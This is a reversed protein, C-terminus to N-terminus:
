EARLAVVPDVKTARRAPIWCALAAVAAFFLITLGLTLPDHASTQFMRSEILRGAALAGLLGLLLGSGVLRAGQGLVLRIVDRPVAGLAMRIGIETTRQSVSYAIVGYIGVAAITLALLSFAILLHLEFRQQHVREDLIERIPRGGGVALTPDVEHIQAAVSSHAGSYEGHTRVILNFRASPSQAFAHYTHAAIPEAPNGQTADAVVGVIERWGSSTASEVQIRRGIPNEGPFHQRAFTENILAVLPAQANDQANFLRGRLLRIGTSPFYGPSVMSWRTRPWLTRDVEPRGEIRFEMTSRATSAFPVNRTVGAVEIGPTTELRSLVADVFAVQREPTPYKATPLALSYQVAHEPVLGLDVYALRIFSRLLLGAGSLLVVACAVELVVLIRRLRGAAPSESNGRPGQKLAENLNVRSALWAPALGFGLATLVSLGIVFAVMRGDMTIAAIDMSAILPHARLAERTWVAILTGAAGGLVALLLSETILQGLLRPRSAGLAARVSLERQRNAARVLLLSAVNACAILLVCGVAGLLTWLMARWNRTFYQQEPAVFYRRGLNTEPYQEALRASLADLEAQAQALTVGPKLLGCVELPVSRVRTRPTNVYPVFAEADNRSRYFDEPAVGIVTWPEGGFQLTRGVIDPVGGFVRQWFGHGLIVVRHNGAIHEDTSFNRGLAFKAQYFPFFDNSVPRAKVNIPDGESTLTLEPFGQYAAVLVEYAKLESQLDLWDGFSVGLNSSASVHKGYIVVRREPEAGYTTLLVSNILSFMTICAGIGLALTVVTVATFGPARVMQRLAYRLDQM